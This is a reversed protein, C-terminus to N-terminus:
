HWSDPNCEETAMWRLGQATPVQIRSWNCGPSAPRGYPDRDGLKGYLAYERARPPLTNPDILRAASASSCLAAVMVLAATGGCALKRANM